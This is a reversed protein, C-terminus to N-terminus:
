KRIVEVLAGEDPNISVGDLRGKLPLTREVIRDTVAVTVDVQEGSAYRLRVTIPFDYVDGKQEFRVRLVSTAAAQSGAPAPVQPTRGAGAGAATTSANISSAVSGDGGGGPSTNTSPVGQSLPPGVRRAADVDEIAYNVTVQPIGSLLIWREFFRQLSQGSEAEFAKRVDDTGVKKFRSDQYFRRM